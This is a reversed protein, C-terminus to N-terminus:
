REILLKGIYFFPYVLLILNPLWWAIDFDKHFIWFSIAMLGSCVTLFLSSLAFVTWRKSGKRYLRISTLGSVSVLMDIPFFSWNWDVLIPNTYDKYLWEPPLLHFWTITWYAIFGIDVIFFLTFLGRPAKKM